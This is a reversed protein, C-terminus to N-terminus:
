RKPRSARGLITSAANTSEQAGETKLRKHAPAISDPAGVGYPPLLNTTPRTCCAFRMMRIEMRYPAQWKTEALNGMAQRPATTVRKEQLPVFTM